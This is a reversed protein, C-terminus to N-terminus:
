ARPTRLGGGGPAGVEGPAGAVGVGADQAELVEPAGGAAPADSVPLCARAATVVLETCVELPVVTSDIILHYLSPDSQRAGYFVRVYAERAGDVDKQMSKATAEDLGDRVAQAIRVEVPGDLRVRLVDARGGLVIMGARGLFVGGTSDAVQRMTIETEERFREPDDIDEPIPNAVLPSSAYAFAEAVRRWGSPAKEDHALARQLPVSLRGAVAAPIARDLFPLGLCRAVAPGVVTGGAGFPASITVSFPM